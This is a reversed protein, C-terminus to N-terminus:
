PYTGWGAVPFPDPTESGQAESKRQEAAMQRMFEPTLHTAKFGAIDRNPRKRLWRKFQGAEIAMAEDDEDDEDNDSPPAQQAVVVVPAAPEPEDPDLDAYEMGNPLYMGLMEAAVSLKIGSEVYNKFAASRTNEDEQFCSLEQPKFVLRLNLPALLQRNIQRQILRADPIITLNYFNQEDQQATAYNAANAMVLSAPVGMAVLIEKQKDDTLTSTNLSELGEGVTVPTVGVRVAATSWANGIGSFFRKWWSELKKMEEPSPNGDVTLLTAKIAGRAFFQAAFQDANFLVGAAQAAAQAPPTMPTTERLGQRWIYVVDEPAMQVKTGNGLARTFGVLGSQVDWVPAMSNPDLWRVNVTRTRNREKHWFAQSKFCWSAETQWLLMPLDALFSLQPPADEDESTWVAEAGETTPTIEWPMGVLSSARVDVARYLLAVSTGIKELDDNDPAGLITWASEPMSEIPLSKTGNFLYQAM